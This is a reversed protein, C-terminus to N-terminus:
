EADDDEAKVKKAVPKGSSKRKKTDQSPARGEAIDKESRILKVLLDGRRNLEQLTRSKIFWDFRFQWAKRIELKIEEWRGYGIKQMLCVIFRDEEATYAKGRNSFYNIKLNQWPSKTSKVKWDLIEKIENRLVIKKEGREIRALVKPWEGIEESRKLFVDFYDGVESAAKGTNQEM